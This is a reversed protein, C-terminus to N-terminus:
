SFVNTIFEMRYSCLEDTMLAMEFGTSKLKGIGKIDKGDLLEEIRSMIFFIRLEDGEIIWDTFPTYVFLHVPLQIIENNQPDKEGNPLVMVIKSKTTEQPGVKPIFRVEQGLMKKRQDATLDPHSLPDMDNYFLLKCLTQDALLRSSIEKLSSSLQKYNRVAM